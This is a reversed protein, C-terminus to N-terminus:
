EIRPVLGHDFSKGKQNNCDKPYGSRYMGGGPETKGKFAHIALRQREILVATLCNQDYIGGGSATKAVLEFVEFLNPPIAFIIAQNDHADRRIVEAALLRPRAFGQEIV